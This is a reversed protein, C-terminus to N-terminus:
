FFADLSTQQVNDKLAKELRKFAKEVRGESFDHESCLFNKIREYDPSSFRMEYDESVKPNLFLEKLEDLGYDSFKKERVIKLAKKPGIGSVGENYDTGILIGIEILEERSIKLNQLERELSIFEPEVTVYINKRPLKRRGTITLNRVLRPTNFLLSDFDQSAAAYTDGRETMFSAQAEGESPAQVHPVGMCELLEKSDRIMDEKLFLTRSAFRRVDEIRGEERAREMEDRAKRKEEERRKITKRKLKPPEGDFVYVPKIGEEILNITRYFLGSLHSTVRGKSDKLPEGDRQRIIALFQYLTNLADISITKGRLRSFEIVEGNIIDALDVGM